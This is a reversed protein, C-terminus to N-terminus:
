PPSKGFRTWSCSIPRVSGSPKHASPLRTVPCFDLWRHIETISLNMAMQSPTVDLPGPSVYKLRIEFDDKDTRELLVLGGLGRSIDRGGCLSMRTIFSTDSM